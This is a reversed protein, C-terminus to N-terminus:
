RANEAFPDSTLGFTSLFSAEKLRIEAAEADPDSAGVIGAGAFTHLEAAGGASRRLLGCRLAVALEGDGQPDLWGVPAAYWGRFPEHREIWDVAERTPLGGVAPTPHLAQAVDLARVGRRLRGRVPTRLHLLRGARRPAPSAATVLSECLPALRRRIGDIVLRHEHGNKPDSMLFGAAAGNVAGEHAADTGALAETSLVGGRCRLLREPTRGFFLAERDAADPTLMFDFGEVPGRRDLGDWLARIWDSGTLVEGAPATILRQRRRAAVVKSLEGNAIHRRLADVDRRWASDELGDAAADALHWTGLHWTGLPATGLPATGLPATEPLGTRRRRATSVEALRDLLTLVCDMQRLRRRRTQLEDRRWAFSLWARGDLQQLAVRPLVFEADAVEGWPGPAADGRPTFSFGGFLRLGPLAAPRGDASGAEDGVVHCVSLEGLRTLGRRVDDFRGVGRGRVSCVAGFGALSFGAEDRWLVRPRGPTGSFLSFLHQVPVSPAPVHVTSVGAAPASLARELGSVVARRPRSFFLDM